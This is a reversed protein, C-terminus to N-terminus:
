KNYGYVTVNGGMTNGTMFFNIGTYQTSNAIRGLCRETFTTTTGVGIGASSVTTNEAKNPSMVDMVYCGVGSIGIRGFAMSTTSTSNQTYSTTNVGFASTYYSYVSSSDGATTRGRLYLSNETGTSQILNFIIKYNDYTSSFIDPIAQDIVGSIRIM